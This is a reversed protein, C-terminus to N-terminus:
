YNDVLRTVVMICKDDIYNKKKSDLYESIELSEAGPQYWFNDYNEEVMEKTVELGVAPPVVFNIISPKEDLENINRYSKLGVVEEEKPNIPVINHGKSILDLLIKNGYKSPDNSAGILAILNNKNKLLDLM